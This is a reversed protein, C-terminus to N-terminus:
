LRVTELKGLKLLSALTIVTVCLWRWGLEMRLVVVVVLLSPFCELVCM